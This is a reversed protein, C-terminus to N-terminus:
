VTCIIMWLLVTHRHYDLLGSNFRHCIVAVQCPICLGSQIIEEQFSCMTSAFYNEVNLIMEDEMRYFLQYYLTLCGRFLNKWLHEIKQNHTLKGAIFSGRGPGRLELMFEAVKM